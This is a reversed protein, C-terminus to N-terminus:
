RSIFVRLVERQESGGIWAKRRKQIVYEIKVAKGERYMAPDGLRTWRSKGGASDLEFEHWDGHGSMFVQAITGQVERKPIRGEEIARWWEESGYLAVEPELGLGETELTAKQVLEITERDQALDYVKIWDSERNKAYFEAIVEIKGCIHENFENLQDAPIWYETFQRGGVERVEFRDLYDKEVSFRTVFGAGSARVNWDQAIRAAYEEQLVPYFIPQEPLRPPFRRWNSQRILELEEPGVPRFLTVTM